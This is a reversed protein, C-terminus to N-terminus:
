EYKVKIKNPKFYSHDSSDQLKTICYLKVLSLNIKRIIQKHFLQSVQLLRLQKPTINLKSSLEARTFRPYIVTKHAIRECTLLRHIIKHTSSFGIPKAFGRNNNAKHKAKNKLPLDDTNNAAAQKENNNKNSPEQGVPLSIKTM